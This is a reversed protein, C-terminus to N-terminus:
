NGGPLRGFAEGLLFKKEGTKKDIEHWALYRWAGESAWSYTDTKNDIVATENNPLYLTTQLCEGSQADWLKISSDVAGSIVRTGEPNFAVSFVGGTHGELYQLCKGSQADWLKISNDDAGSIVHTGEPNFVVSLVGDTHGEFCQLCKGSQVDWLKISNDAAGSIVWTGEPNFAVSRVGDTHGEFNQLCEGSQLDWLKISSDAAALIVQTGEPNFAINNVRGYNEELSQLCEGSQADWLKISSDAAASIVQTGEPNFVVIRVKGSHGKLSQLCEGSQADWLKISNDNAGSIVRTGEPNFAVSNVSSTHGEFNQLCKGSQVGWLKISNDDACSIVSTGESNFAVTIIGGIYGEFTQLCEGSQADWLKISNDAAGSIVRTGEPNFAVSWVTSTHGEFKQLCEGSQVDWLIVSNNESTIVHIGKSNIAASIMWDKNNEFTKVCEGSQVDWLKLMNDLSSSIMQTGEFNFDISTVGSVHGVLSRLCEGSKVDWFKISNDFSGSIVLTGELNFAVSTVSDTHGEFSHLCDGSNIDWLKISNDSAGSIVHTGESNFAVNWLMSTHGEFIQLCEGSQVDWLKINNDDAGSIVRTGEPNFAVSYISGTHGEFSQLCEGSQADWLKISKDAASSIVCTGDPSFAVSQVAGTHGKNLHSKLMSFSNSQAIRAENNEIDVYHVMSTFNNARKVKNFLPRIWKSARIPCKELDIEGLKCDRWISAELNTEEFQVEALEANHFEAQFADINNFSGQFIKVKYFRTRRLKAHSLDINNLNLETKNDSNIHLESFNCHSLDFRSPQLVSYIQDKCLLWFKFALERAQVNFLNDKNELLQSLSERSKDSNSQAFLQGLFALTEQSPVSIEWVKLDGKELSKYLHSALFFEALSSHSFQFNESDPRTIFTATRLDEKLLTRDKNAYAGAFASHQDFYDDLWDAVKTFPLQRTGRKWLEAALSEMLRPKHAPDFQHKGEDRQVWEEILNQYLNIAWITEGNERQRELRQMQSSILNLSYPRQALDSLNHVSALLDMVEYPNTDPLNKSFYERIQKKSFPLLTLAHYTEKSMGERQQGMLMSAEQKVTSFFHSRCTLMVKGRNKNEENNQLPPLIAWLQRIFANNQADDLHVMVEDLGDFIVLAGHKRVNSIIEETDPTEGMAHYSRQLTTKLIEELEPHKHQKLDYGESFRRLDLYYTIPTKSDTQRKKGLREAFMMSTFTKGMGYEGLLACYPRSEPDCAWKELHDLADVGEDDGIEKLTEGLESQIARTKIYSDSEYGNNECVKTFYNNLGTLEKNLQPVIPIEDMHQTHAKLRDSIQKALEEAWDDKEVETELELYPKEAKGRYIQIDAIGHLDHRDFQLKRILIPSAFKSAKIGSNPQEVFWPLESNKIYGSNFFHQSLALLGFDCNKIAQQIKEDFGDGMKLEEKFLWFKVEKDLGLMAFYIGTREVLEKVLEFDNTAVSVFINYSEVKIRPKIPISQHLPQSVSQNYDDARKGQLPAGNFWCLKEILEIKRRADVELEFDIQHSEALKNLENKFNTFQVRATEQQAQPFLFTYIIQLNLSPQELLTILASIKKLFGSGSNEEEAKQKLQNLYTETDQKSLKQKHNNEM